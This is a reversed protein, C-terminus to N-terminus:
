YPCRFRPCWRKTTQKLATQFGSTGGLSTSRRSPRRFSSAPVAHLATRTRTFGAALPIGFRGVWYTSRGLPGHFGQQVDEVSPYFVRAGIWDTTMNVPETTWYKRTYAAPFTDAFVRGFAQHLWEQYNTPRPPPEPSSRAELFTNLCATRLPEPVQYLNSQAPHDIWHGKYYNGARTECEEFQRDVSEAFLKRVYENNTFSVHPGDDWTFGDRRASKIHGGYHSASEYIVCTEHGLHFSTTLGSLGGGLITVTKM